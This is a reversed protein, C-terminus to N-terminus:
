GDASRSQLLAEYAPMSIVLMYINAAILTTAAGPSRASPNLVAHLLM